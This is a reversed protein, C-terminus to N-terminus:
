GKKTYKRVTRSGTKHTTVVTGTDPNVVVSVIRGVYKRSIGNNDIKDPRIYIPNVLADVIENPNVERSITREALHQSTLKIKIGDVTKM